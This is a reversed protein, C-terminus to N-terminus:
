SRVRLELVAIEPFAGLRLPIGSVGIGRCIFVPCAPGQVLGRAYKQGCRSNTVPAGLFPFSVQGGHTHGSLMLDVRRGAHLLAPEEAVDPNHSLLLRPMEAPLGDLAVEYDPEDEWLDGVGCVALGADAQPVLRREPTLVRRGNDLMPIGIQALGARLREADEYWDHNGLVAVTAIRPKLQALEAVVPDIYARSQHVYDGTLCVLDPELENAAEVVQRVYHLSLWPGHHIDTLQVLRLGDLAPPLDRIGIQRRSVTFWRPEILFSYGLGLAAGTGLLQAGGALFRRRGTIAASLSPRARRRRWARVAVGALFYVVANVALSFLWAKFSTHHNARLGVAHALSLGPILLLDELGLLFALVPQGTGQAHLPRLIWRVCVGYAVVATALVLGLRVGAALRGSGAENPM